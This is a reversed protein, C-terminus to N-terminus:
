VWEVFPKREWVIWFIWGDLRATRVEEVDEGNEMVGSLELFHPLRTEWRSSALLMQVGGPLIGGLGRTQGGGVQPMPTTFAM